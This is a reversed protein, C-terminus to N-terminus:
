NAMHLCINNKPNLLGNKIAIKILKYLYLVMFFNMKAPIRM